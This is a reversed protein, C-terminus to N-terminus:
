PSEQSTSPSAPLTSTEAPSPSPSPSPAPKATPSAKPKPSPTPQLKAFPTPAGREVRTAVGWRSKVVRQVHAPDVRETLGADRILRQVHANMDPIQRYVDRSVELYIASGEVSIKAPQYVIRVMAGKDLLDFLQEVHETRMRICGHTSFRGISGPANTGHIGYGWASLGIWRSGLPNTPGPKVKTLVEKGERRMEEQISRPVNWVPDKRKEVVKFSGTPTRWRKPDDADKDSPEGLAVPYVTIGTADYRYLLGDPINVVVAAGQAPPPIHRDSLHIQQGARLPKRTSLGNIALLRRLDLGYRGAIRSLTDTPQITYVWERGLVPSTAPQALAPLSGPLGGLPAPLTGLFLATALLVKGKTLIPM